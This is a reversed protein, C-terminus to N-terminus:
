FAMEESRFVLIGDAWIHGPLVRVQVQSDVAAAAIVKFSDPTDAPVAAGNPGFAARRATDQWGTVIRTQATGDRDLIVRGEQFLVGAENLVAQGPGISFDGHM